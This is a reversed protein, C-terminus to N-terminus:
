PDDLLRGEQALALEGEQLPLGPRRVVLGPGVEADLEGRKRLADPAGDAPHGVRAPDLRDADAAASPARWRLQWGSSRAREWRTPSAGEPRPRGWGGSRTPM